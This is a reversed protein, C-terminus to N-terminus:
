YKNVTSVILANHPCIGEKYRNCTFMKIRSTTKQFVTKNGDYKGSSCVAYVDYGQSKLFKLQGQLMFKLTIDSSSIHCIKLKSKEM